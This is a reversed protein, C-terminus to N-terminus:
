SPKKSDLLSQLAAFRPDIAEVEHQCIVENQNEGCIPCLGKCDLRCLPAIPIELLMYERILSSLNIVGSEPVILGSDTVSKSKFAFLETFDPKLKLEFPELCRMCEVTTKASLKVRVLLGQSTRTVKVSGSVDKLELDQLQIRSIEVPFDRSYGNQEAVIFGVNFRFPHDKNPMISQLFLYKTYIPFLIVYKAILTL